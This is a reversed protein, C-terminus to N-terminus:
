DIVNVYFINKLTSWHVSLYWFLVRGVCRSKSEHFVVILSLGRHTTIPQRFIAILLSFITIFITGLNKLKTKAVRSGEYIALLLFLRNKRLLQAIEFFIEMIAFDEGRSLNLRSIGLYYALVLGFHIQVILHQLGVPLQLFELLSHLFM